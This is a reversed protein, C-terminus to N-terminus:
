ATRSGGPDTPRLRERLDPPLAKPKGAQHDYYVLVKRAEAVLRRTKRETIRSELVFSTQGISACWCAVDLVEGYFAPARFDVEVRALIMDIRKLDASGTLDIWYAIRAAELYTLYVSNNVHGLPDLDRFRVEIPIVFATRPTKLV